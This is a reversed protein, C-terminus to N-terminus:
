KLTLGIENMDIGNMVIWLNDMVHPFYLFFTIVLQQSKDVM